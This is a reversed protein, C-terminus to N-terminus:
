KFFDIDANSGHIQTHCVTCAQYQNAMNHFSPVGPATFNMSPSHCQLCLNNINSVKLLRANPSGHPSHCSVCSVDNKSHESNIANMHQTGGEHCSLCRSNIEKTSHDKFIFIKTIDGGGAVHASGPGHCSECGHSASGKSDLMTKWHPSKEWGNYIEEHCTKCVEAGVYEAPSSTASTGLSPVPSASKAQATPTSKDAPPPTAQPQGWATASLLASATLLRLAKWIGVFVDFEGSRTAVSSSDYQKKVILFQGSYCVNSVAVQPCPYRDLNPSHQHVLKLANM